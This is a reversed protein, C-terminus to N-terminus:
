VELELHFQHDREPKGPAIDRDPLRKIMDPAIGDADVQCPAVALTVGAIQPQRPFDSLTEIGRRWATGNRSRAIRSMELAADNPQRHIADFALTAVDSLHDPAYGLHDRLQRPKNLNPGGGHDVGARRCTDAGDHRAIHNGCLNISQGREGDGDRWGLCSM